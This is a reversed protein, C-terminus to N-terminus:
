YSIGLHSSNLRTSKRDRLRDAERLEYARRDAAAKYTMLGWASLGIALIAAGAVLVTRVVRPSWPTRRTGPQSAPPVPEPPLAPQSEAPPPAALASSAPAGLTSNLDVIFRQFGPTDASGDWGVLDAAQIGRFGMPQDVAELLVPVLKRQRNGENAEDRVWRSQVSERTWLVIMCRADRLESEIVETFDRGAPIRRDWWVTWGRSQLASALQGARPRDESAYSLFIDAM